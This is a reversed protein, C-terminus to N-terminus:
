IFFITGIDTLKGGSLSVANKSYKKCFNKIKDCDPHTNLDGCFYVNEKDAGTAGGIFGHNYPVLDVFGESIKLVDLQTEECLTKYIGSDSTIVANDSVICISCKSYGQKINIAKIGKEAMASLIEKAIYDTNAVLYKGIKAANFIVDNPYKEGIEVSSLVLELGCSQLIEDIIARNETYYGKSTILKDDTAFILMDPHSAVASQLGSYPPLAIVKYGNEELALRAKLSIRCDVVAVM